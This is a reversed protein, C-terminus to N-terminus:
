SQSGSRGSDIDFPRHFLTYKLGKYVSAIEESKLDIHSFGGLLGFELLQIIRLTISTIDASKGLDALAIWQCDIIEHLCPNIDFTKPTLRCVAFFDSRGFAGPHNHHQRLAIVANFDTEIGTEEFVERMATDGINEGLDSLGTPFKWTTYTKHRDQVVLVQKTNERLVVGAVGVQHTAFRPTADGKRKDLWRKLMAHQDEAHHFAFGHQAALAILRSHQIPVHLWVATRKEFEWQHMSTSLVKTFEEDTIDVALQGIDVFIGNYKDTEGSLNHIYCSRSTSSLSCRGRQNAPLHIHRCDAHMYHQGLITLLRRAMM